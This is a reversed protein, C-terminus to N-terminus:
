SHRRPKPDTYEPICVIPHTHIISPPNVMPATRIPAATVASNQVCGSFVFTTINPRAVSSPTAIAAVRSENPWSEPTRLANTLGGEQFNNANTAAATPRPTEIMHDSMTRFSPRLFLHFQKKRPRQRIRPRRTLTSFPVQKILRRAIYPSQPVGPRAISLASHLLPAPIESCYARAGSRTHSPRYAAPTLRALVTGAETGPWIRGAMRAQRAGPSGSGMGYTLHAAPRSASLTDSRSDFGM